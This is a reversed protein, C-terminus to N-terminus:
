SPCPDRSWTWNGCYYGGDGPTGDTVVGIFFDAIGRNPGHTIKEVDGHVILQPTTYPQKTERNQSLNM